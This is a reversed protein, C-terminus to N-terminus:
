KYRFPKPITKSNLRREQTHAVQDIHEIHAETKRKTKEKKASDKETTKKIIIIIILMQSTFRYKVREGWGIEREREIL